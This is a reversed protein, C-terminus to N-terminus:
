VDLPVMVTVTVQEAGFNDEGSALLQEITLDDTNPPNDRRYVVTDPRAVPNDCMVDTKLRCWAYDAGLSFVFGICIDWNNCKKWCNDYDIYEERLQNGPCEYDEMQLTYGEPAALIESMSADAAVPTFKTPIVDDADPPTIRRYVVVGDWPMESACLTEQKLECSTKAERVEVDPNLNYQFGVCRPDRLCKRSCCEHCINEKLLTNELCLANSKVWEFDNFVLVEIEPGTPAQCDNDLFANLYELDEKLETLKANEECTATCDEVGKVDPVLALLAFLGIAPIWM